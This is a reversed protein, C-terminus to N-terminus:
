RGAAHDEEAAHPKRVEDVTRRLVCVEDREYRNGFLQVTKRDAQADDARLERSRGVLDLAQTLRVVSVGIELM